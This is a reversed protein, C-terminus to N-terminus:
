NENSYMKIARYVPSFTLGLNEAVKETVATIHSGATNVRLYEKIIAKKRAEREQAKKTLLPKM